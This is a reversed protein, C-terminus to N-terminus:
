MTLVLRWVVVCDTKLLAIDYNHSISGEANNRLVLMRSKNIAQCLKYKVHHPMM